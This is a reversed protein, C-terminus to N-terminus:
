EPSKQQELTSLGPNCTRDLFLAITSPNEQMGDRVWDRIIAMSGYSFFTYLKEMASTEIEPNTKKWQEISKERALLLIREMFDKDGYDSFLITCLEGNEKIALLIDMLMSSVSDGGLGSSLSNKIREMLESEIQQLLENIDTYHAYFTTRNVDAKECLEKVSIKTIPREKMLSLLSQKLVMRTYRARRDM